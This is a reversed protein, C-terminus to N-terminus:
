YFELLKKKVREIVEFPTSTGGTIGIRKFGKWKQVEVEEEREIFYTKVKLSQCLKVLKTTNSSNYGGVVIMAEVKKALSETAKQREKIVKCITNFVRCEETKGVLNKVINKFNDLTETTQVVVGMKRMFPIKEVERPDKVVFISVGKKGTRSIVGRVEPHSELGIIVVGYSNQSLQKAVRQVRQVYPCTTDVIKLGRLKAEEILRPDVGHSRTVLTGNKIESLDSVVKAGRKKLDEMIQPNHVLDGWLYVKEGRNLEETTLRLAREVGFCLGIEQSFFIEM